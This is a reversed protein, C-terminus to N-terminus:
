RAQRVFLRDTQQKLERFRNRDLAPFLVLKAYNSLDLTYRGKTNGFFRGPETKDVTELVDARTAFEMFLAAAYPHESGKITSITIGQGFTPTPLVFDVPAGKAKLQSPRHAGMNWAIDIEGQALADSLAAISTYLRNGLAALRELKGKAEAEGYALILGQYMSELQTTTGARDKWKPDAVADLTKPADASPVRDTRWAISSPLIEYSLASWGASAGGFRLRPDFVDWTTTQYPALAPKILDLWPISAVAADSNVRRTRSELLLKDALDSESLRVFDVKIGPYQKQFPEIFLNIRDIGLAGYVVVRGERAAERELIPQREAAPLANLYSWVKDPERPAETQAMAATASCMMIGLLTVFALRETARM